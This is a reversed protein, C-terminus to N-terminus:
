TQARRHGARRKKERHGDLELVQSAMRSDVSKRYLKARRIYSRSLRRSGYPALVDSIDVLTVRRARYSRRPVRNSSDLCPCACIRRLPRETPWSYRNRSQVTQTSNHNIIARRFSHFFDRRRVFKYLSGDFKRESLTRRTSFMNQDISSSGSGNCEVPAPKEGRPCLGRPLRTSLRRFDESYLRTRTRAPANDFNARSVQLIHTSNQRRTRSLARLDRGSQLDLARRSWEM